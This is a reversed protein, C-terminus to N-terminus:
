QEMREALVESKGYRMLHVMPRRAPCVYACCGCEICHLLDREAAEEFHHFECLKSLEAPVLNVPCAAVCRGCHICPENAFARVQAASQVM